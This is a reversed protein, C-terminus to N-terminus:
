ACSGGRKMGPIGNARKVKELPTDKVGSKIPASPMGISPVAGGKKFGVAKDGGAMRKHQPIRSDSM